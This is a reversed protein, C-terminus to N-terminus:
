PYYVRFAEPSTAEVTHYKDKLNENLLSPMKDADLRLQQLARHIAVRITGERKGLLQAIERLSYDESYRLILPIRYTPPLAQVHLWIQARSEAAIAIDEPLGVQSAEGDRSVEELPVQRDRQRVKLTNLLHHTFIRQFWLPFAAPDRLQKRREFARLFAEQACDQAEDLTLGSLVALRVTRPYYQNFLAHVAQEDAQQWARIEALESEHM